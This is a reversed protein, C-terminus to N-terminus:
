RLAPRTNGSDDTACSDCLTKIWGGGRSEGVVGCVECTQEAKQEAERILASMEDTYHTMYFRLGGFKEKVQAARPHNPRYGPCGCDVRKKIGLKEALFVGLKNVVKIIKPRLNLRWYRIAPLLAKSVKGKSRPYLYGRPQKIGYPVMWFVECNGDADHEDKAHGCMCDMDPNEDLEKQIAAELKESLERIVPEWGDGPFGWCMCTEQASGHRDAYLLPFDMVLQKDLDERM